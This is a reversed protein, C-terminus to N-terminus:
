CKNSHLLDAYLHWGTILSKSVVETPLGALERAPDTPQMHWTYM